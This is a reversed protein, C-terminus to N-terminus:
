ISRRYEFSPDDSPGPGYACLDVEVPKLWLTMTEKWFFEKRVEACRPVELSVKGGGDVSARGVECVGSWM